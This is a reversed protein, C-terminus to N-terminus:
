AGGFPPVGVRASAGTLSLMWLKRSVPAIMSPQLGPCDSSCTHSELAPKVGALFFAALNATQVIGRTQQCHDRALYDDDSM